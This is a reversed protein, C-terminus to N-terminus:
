CPPFPISSRLAIRLVQAAGVLALGSLLATDAPLLAFAPRHCGIVELVVM